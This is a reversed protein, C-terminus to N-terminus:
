QSKIVLQAEKLGVSKATVTISGSVDPKSRVIVLALGNFANRENSPFPTFNTPDGNDTAVIEGCGDIEFKISNNARPTTLGNKDAVRVTIFSLDKGDAQIINRDASAKLQAPEDTTKVVDEAWKKGNKYAVVKLEGPEYKLEDWRLRYENQGKKKRGLSKGNLFLEAEDGSTFVHVPTVEGLRESWNWHPLIHAM